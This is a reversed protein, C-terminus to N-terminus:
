ASLPTKKKKVRSREEYIYGSNARNTSSVNCVETTSILPFPSKHLVAYRPLSDLGGAKWIIMIKVFIMEFIQRQTQCFAFFCEPVAMVALQMCGQQVLRLLHNM